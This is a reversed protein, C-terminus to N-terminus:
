GLYSSLNPVTSDLDVIIVEQGIKRVAEWPIIINQKDVWFSILNNKQPLIISQILGTRPDIILDAEGIVGLRSGDNINIIEKGEM